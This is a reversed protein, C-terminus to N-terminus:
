RGSGRATTPAGAPVAVDGVAPEHSSTLELAFSMLEVGPQPSFDLEPCRAFGLRRYLAHASAMAPTSCLRLRRAGTARARDICWRTLAGGIGCGRAEPDVGLMRFEAEDPGSVEAWRSGPLVFTVCGLVRGAADVAVIIEADRSRDATDAVVSLYGAEGHGDAAYARVVVAGAEELEDLRAPRIVIEAPSPPM